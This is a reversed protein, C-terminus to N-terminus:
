EANSHHPAKEKQHRAKEKEKVDSGQTREYDQNLWAYSLIHNILFLTSVFHLPPILSLSLSVMTIKKPLRRRVNALLNTGEMYEGLDKKM